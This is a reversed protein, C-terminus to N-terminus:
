TPVNEPRLVARAAGVEARAQANAADLDAEATVLAAKKIEVQVEYPTKDLEVLLDGKKVRYDDDVLVRDIQGPVRAAVFTVYGNVYADDTSVTNLATIIGPTFFYAALGLLIIVAALIFWKRGTSRRPTRVPEAPADARPPGNVPASAPPQEPRPLRQAPAVSAVESGAGSAANPSRPGPEPRNDGDSPKTTEM